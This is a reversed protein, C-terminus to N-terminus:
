RTIKRKMNLKLSKRGTPRSELNRRKAGLNAQDSRSWVKLKEKLAKLKSALIFNPRGSFSITDWWEKIRNTFGETDLWWNEFKFYNKNQNWVGGLLAIPTHDSGLRQLAIQKINNFSEDWEKSILIRDIKSAINQNDGNFWTYQGDELQTDLLKLDEIFDSFERMDKTKRLCNRKESIFRLVNFDGCVAWPGEILSRIARIEEWVLRREVYCNPAYM